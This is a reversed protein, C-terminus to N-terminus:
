TTVSEVQSSDMKVGTTGVIFGLFEVESIFFSCKKLNIYLHYKQLQLFVAHVNKIHQKKTTFYILIDNLYVVCIIDVLHWLAENIYAQFTALVNVFDFSMILYKFHKYRICFITKWWHKEAICIWYYIDKLNLKTFYYFGVLHNLTENILPLSHHNKITKKNLSWYDVCLWLSGDRKSVFLISSGALSVSHQIWSKILADDLYEHLIRLEHSSLNYLLRYSVKQNEMDIHHMVSEYLSSMSGERIVVVNQFNTLERPLTVQTFQDAKTLSSLM